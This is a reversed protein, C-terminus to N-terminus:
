TRLSFYFFFLPCVCVCARVCDCSVAVANHSRVCALIELVAQCDEGARMALTELVTNVHM